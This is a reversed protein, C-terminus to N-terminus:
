LVAYPHNFIDDDGKNRKSRWKDLLNKWTSRLYCYFRNYWDKM